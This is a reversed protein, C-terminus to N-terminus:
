VHIKIPMVKPVTIPAVAAKLTFIVAIGSITAIKLPNPPIALRRTPEESYRTESELKLIKIGIYRVTTIPPIVKVPLRIAYLLSEPTTVPLGM